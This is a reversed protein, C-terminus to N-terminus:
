NGVYSRVTILPSEGKKMSVSVDVAKLFDAATSVRKVEYFWTQGALEEEGSRLRISQPHLLALAMQNDAVMAAFTKEELYRTTNLHQSVSRLVAIATVAFIAMAILVELLTMGRQRTNM